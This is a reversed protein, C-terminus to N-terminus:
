RPRSRPLPLTVGAWAPETIHRGALEGTLAATLISHDDVCLAHVQVGIVMIDLLALGVGILDPDAATRRPSYQGARDDATRNARDGSIVM